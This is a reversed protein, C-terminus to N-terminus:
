ASKGPEPKDPKIHATKASKAHFDDFQKQQEPTLTAYFTKLALLNAAMKAEQEQLLSLQQQMREPTTLKEMAARDIRLSKTPPTIDAVFTAWAPQQAQSLQLTDHLETQHQVLNTHASETVRSQQVTQRSLQEQADVLTSAAVFGFAIFGFAIKKRLQNAM